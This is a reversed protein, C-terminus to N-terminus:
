LRTELYKRKMMMMTTTVMIGKVVMLIRGQGDRTMNCEGQGGRRRRFLFSGCLAGLDSKFNRLESSNLHGHMWVEDRTEDTSGTRRDESM